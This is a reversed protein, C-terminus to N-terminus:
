WTTMKWRNFGQLRFSLCSKCLLIHIHLCVYLSDASNDSFSIVEIFQSFRHLQYLSLRFLCQKSTGWGFLVNTNLQKPVDTASTKCTLVGNINEALCGSLPLHVAASDVLQETQRAVCLSVLTTSLLSQHRPLLECHCYQLLSCSFTPHPSSPLCLKAHPPPLYRELDKGTRGGEPRHKCECMVLFTSTSDQWVSFLFSIQVEGSFHIHM